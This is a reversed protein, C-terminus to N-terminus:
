GGKLGILSGGRRWGRTGNAMMGGDAHIRKWTVTETTADTEAIVFATPGIATGITGSGASIIMETAVLSTRAIGVINMVITAEASEDVTMATVGLQHPTGAYVLGRAHNKALIVTEEVM